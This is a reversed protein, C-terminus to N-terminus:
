WALVFVHWDGAVITTAKRGPDFPGETQMIVHPPATRRRRRRRRLCLQVRRRRDELLLLLMISFAQCRQRQFFKVGRPTPPLLLAPPQVFLRGKYACRRRQGHSDPNDMSSMTLSIYEDEGSNDWFLIQISHAIMKFRKICRLWRVPHPFIETWNEAEYSHYTTTLTLLRGVVEGFWKWSRIIMLIGSRWVGIM